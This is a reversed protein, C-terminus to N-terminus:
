AASRDVGAIGQRQCGHRAAPQVRDQPQIELVLQAGYTTAEVRAGAVTLRVEMEGGGAPKATVVFDQRVGDMSVEYEEVLGAREFRVTQGAVSVTGTEPLPWVTGVRGVSAVRVRFRDKTQNTM